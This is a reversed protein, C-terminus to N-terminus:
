SFGKVSSKNSSGFKDTDIGMQKLMVVFLNALPENDKQDFALHQGHKFGGGALMIPMNRTDHNSGNGLNSGYFVMTNDLLTDNGEHVGNLKQLFDRLAKMHEDEILALEKLKNKNQGHHSLPHYGETVGKVPPVTSQGMMNLTILRTSDTKLALYMMDFLLKSKGVVDSESSIDVPRKIDVNPKPKEEWAQMRVMNQEVQRVSTLYEDFKERDPKSLKTNISKSEGLITDMVSKNMKLRQVQKAKEAKSGNLFLQNYVSSPRHEAPIPIGSRTWSLSNTGKNTRLPLSSFRTQAGLYDLAYQDLSISNKFSGMAPHESCTLYSKSSTHGGDVNPHSMGSFITMKNRFENVIKLYRPSKYDSGIEKPIFNEKLIGLGNCVAVLRKPNLQTKTAGLSEFAPLAFMVGSAKLFNRRNLSM